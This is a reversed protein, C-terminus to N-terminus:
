LIGIELEQALLQKKYLKSFVEGKKILSGYNGTEVLAGKDLVVIHDARSITSLRHSVIINTKVKRSELIQNLIKGETRTDVMSLADDLILIPPDSALARAITLRQRQGGSLTLGKEGLVTDLGRELDMIEDYIHATKLVKEVIEETIEDRGFIINNRISDSFIISEQTVFGISRRLEILPHNRVDIGDVFVAGTTADLIRPILHLLSTKGSGVPGVLSLTEGQNVKLSIDRLTYDKQGPYKLSLDHFAIEGKIPPINKYLATGTIEPKEDLIRNIRRMSAVSRQFLNVVWGMAMMPWTLLNLYGIFAVFDGTTIQGIITLRGGLWIVIVMGINTFLAMIPFFLALTRALKINGRVYDKGKEEIRSNGWLERQFAKVVKIGSFTERARETLESFINQVNEYGSSMRRTFKKSLYIVIPAPILAILTLLPDIYIMFGIAALGMILGDMMAVLGMGTGMRVYNIDNISRAMLDGTKTKQYFSYSLTQLHKFLMNRLQEEVKRSHGMVFYRWIYRLSAIFIAILLIVAGYKLLISSSASRMTLSDIAKKIVLPIILQLIDVIFLCLLGIALYVRNEIFCKKLPKFHKISDNFSILTKKM